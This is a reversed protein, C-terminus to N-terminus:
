EVLLAAACEPIETIYELAQQCEQAQIMCEQVASMAETAVKTCETRCEAEAKQPFTVLLMYGLIVIIVVLIIIIINKINTM